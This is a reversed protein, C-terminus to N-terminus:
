PTNGPKGQTKGLICYKGPNELTQPFGTGTHANQRMGVEINRFLGTEKSEGQYHDSKM